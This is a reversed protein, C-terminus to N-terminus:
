YGEHAVSVAGCDRGVNKICRIMELRIFKGSSHDPDISNAYVLFVVDLFCNLYGMHLVNIRASIFNEYPQSYGFIVAVERDIL